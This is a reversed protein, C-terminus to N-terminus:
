SHTSLLKQLLITDCSGDPQAQIFYLRQWNQTAQAQKSDVVDWCPYVRIARKGGKGAKSLVGKALLVSKPFIFFGFNDQTRAAVIFFDIADTVDYPMIPGSGIRKWLTVFQGIKTPTIKAVRFKVASDNFQLSLAGYEQSEAEVQVNQFKAGLQDFVIKEITYFDAPLNKVTM